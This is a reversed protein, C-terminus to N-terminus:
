FSKIFEALLRKQRDNLGNVARTVEDSDDEEKFFDSLSINLANCLARLTSIKPESGSNFMNSVTSQTLMAELALRNISWGKEIRLKDIKKVIDMIVGSFKKNLNM